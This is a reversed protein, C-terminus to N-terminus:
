SGIVTNGVAVVARFPESATYEYTNTRPKMTRFVELAAYVVREVRMVAIFALRRLSALFSGLLAFVWRREFAIFRPISATMCALLLLLGYWSIYFVRSTSALMVPLDPALTLLTRFSLCPRKGEGSSPCANVDAIGQKHYLDTEYSSPELTAPSYPTLLLWRPFRQKFNGALGQGTVKGIRACMM